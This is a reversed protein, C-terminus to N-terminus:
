NACGAALPVVSFSLFMRLVTPGQAVKQVVPGRYNTGDAGGGGDHRCQENKNCNMMLAPTASRRSVRRPSPKPVLLYQKKGQIKIITTINPNSQETHLHRSMHTAMVPTVLVLSQATGGNTAVARVYRVAEVTLRLM